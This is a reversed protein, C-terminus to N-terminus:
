MCCTVTQHRDAKLCPHAMSMPRHNKVASVRSEYLRMSSGCHARVEVSFCGLAGLVLWTSWRLRFMLGRESKEIMHRCLIWCPVLLQSQIHVAELSVPIDYFMQHICLDATRLPLRLGCRPPKISGPNSGAQMLFPPPRIDM